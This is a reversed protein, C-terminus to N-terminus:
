VKRAAPLESCEHAIKEINLSYKEYDRHVDFWARVRMRTKPGFEAGIRYLYYLGWIPSLLWAIIVTGVLSTLSWSWLFWGLGASDLIPILMYGIGMSSLLFAPGLLSLPNSLLTEGVLGLKRWRFWLDRIGIM